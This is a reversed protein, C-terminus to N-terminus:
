EMDHLAHVIPTHAARWAPIGASLLNLLLTFFFASLVTFPNLLMGVTLETTASVLFSKCVSLIVFSFALGIVGGICSVLLNECLVQWVLSGSHAGFAKRVGIEPRRKRFQTLTIGIINLAPLLLLFAILGGANKMWEAPDSEQWGTAGMVQEWQSFPSHMFNVETGDPLSANFASLTKQLEARIAEFDGSSRALMIVEFPGTCGAYAKANRSELGEMSTYPLWVDAYARDAAETVEEVVGCVAYEQSGIRFNRGVAEVTGFLSRAVKRSIVARCLGSEFDGKGFPEGSLFSFRFVQWFNMDTPMVKYKNFQKRNPLNLSTSILTTATVTEPVTLKYFCEKVVKSSMGGNNTSNTEQVQTSNVYLSRFRNVEPAYSGYNVQHILIIQMVAAVSLATGAISLGSVLRNEKLLHWAQKLYLKIM